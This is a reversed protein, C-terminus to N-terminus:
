SVLYTGGCYAAGLWAVTTISAIEQVDRQLQAIDAANTEIEQQLHTVTEEDLLDHM